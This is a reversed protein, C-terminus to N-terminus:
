LIKDKGYYQDFGFCNRGYENKFALVLWVKTIPIKWDKNNETLVVSNKSAMVMTCALTSSSSFIILCFLLFVYIKKM